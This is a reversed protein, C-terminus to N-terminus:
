KTGTAPMFKRKCEGIDEVKQVVPAWKGSVYDAEYKAAIRYRKCPELELEITQLDDVIVAARASSYHVQISHRGPPLPDSRRPNRPSKGDIRSLGIVDEQQAPKRDGSEVLAYPQDFLGAWASAAIMAAVLAVTARIRKM